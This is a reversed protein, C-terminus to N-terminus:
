HDVDRWLRKYAFYLLVSLGLLFIMVQVGMLKREELK